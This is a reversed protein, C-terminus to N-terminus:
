KQTSFVMDNDNGNDQCKYCEHASWQKALSYSFVDPRQLMKKGKEACM